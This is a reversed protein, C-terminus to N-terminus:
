EKKNAKDVLDQVDHLQEFFPKKEGVRARYHSGDPDHIMCICESTPSSTLTCWGEKEYAGQITMTGAKIEKWYKATIEDWPQDIVEPEDM